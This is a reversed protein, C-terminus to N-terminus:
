AIPVEIRDRAVCVENKIVYCEVFHPGHFNATEKRERRGEDRIIQGRIQNRRVAEEGVNRVKWKVEYPEPVDCEVIHFRLSMGHNLWPFHGALARLHGYTTPGAYDCDIELKRRIDVPHQDEIFEEGAEGHDRKVHATEFAETAIVTVELPFERGFVERWLKARKRENKEDRAEICLEAAKKAKRHFNGKNGIHAQSGPARWYDQQKLNALYTFLAAVLEPYAAYSKDDFDKCEDFFRYCLTDILIGSMPVGHENKWSRLMKCAHKFNRNTRENMELMAEMEQRPYTVKWSGGNNTDPHIYDKTDKRYFAPLVEVKFKKFQVVVVQGDGKIETNVYRTKISDRVAQLLQSPGNGDRQRCREYLNWPLEFLMDLDSVGHIATHRGYSGVQLCHVNDSDSNYFNKNLRTTISRYSTSIDAENSVSISKRFQAFLVASM